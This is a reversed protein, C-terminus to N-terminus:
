AARRRRASLGVALLAGAVLGSPEPVEGTTFAIETINKVVSKGEGSSFADPQDAQESSFEISLSYVTNPALTGAPLPLSTQGTADVAIPAQGGSLSAIHVTVRDVEAGPANWELTVPRSPNLGSLVEYVSGTFYPVSDVDHSRLAVSERITSSGSNAALTYDGAPWATELQSTSFYGSSIDWRTGGPMADLPADPGTPHELVVGSFEFPDDSAFQAFVEHFSPAAPALNSGDQLYASLRGLTWEIVVARASDASLVFLMLVAFLACRPRM